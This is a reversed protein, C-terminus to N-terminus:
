SARRLRAERLRARAMALADEAPILRAQGADIRDLRRRVEAIWEEAVEPAFRGDSLLEEALLVREEEPLQLAAKFIEDRTM